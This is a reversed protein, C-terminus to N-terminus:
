YFERLADKGVGGTLVPIHNVYADDVTWGAITVTSAQPQRDARKAADTAARANEKEVQRAYSKPLLLISDGRAIRANILRFACKDGNKTSRELRYFDRDSLPGTIVTYGKGDDLVASVFDADAAPTFPELLAAAQIPYAPHRDDLASRLATVLDDSVFRADLERALPLAVYPGPAQTTM